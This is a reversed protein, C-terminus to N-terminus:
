TLFQLAYAGTLAAIVLWFLKNIVATTSSTEDLKKSAEDVKKELNEFRKMMDTRDRESTAMKEETRALIVFAESLQDIKEEIRELRRPDDNSM